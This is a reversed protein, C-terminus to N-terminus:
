RFELFAIGPSPMPLTVQFGKEWPATEPPTEDTALAKEIIRDMAERDDEGPRGMRVWEGHANGHDEDARLLRTCRRTRGDPTNVRLTTLTAYPQRGIDEDYNALVVRIAGDPMLVALADVPEAERQVPLRHGNKLFNLMLFANYVPKPVPKLTGFGGQRYDNTRTLLGMCGNDTFLGPPRPMEPHGVMAFFTAYDLGNDLYLIVTKVALAANWPLDFISSQMATANWETCGSEYHTEGYRSGQEQLEHILPATM